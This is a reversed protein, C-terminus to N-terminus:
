VIKLVDVDADAMFIIKEYKCDKYPDFKRTYPKGLLIQIIAQVEANAMFEKYSKQFANPMKGRIPFVGQRMKDRGNKAQGGASDGEVILLELHEKGLPKAYKDPLGSLTNQKYKTVIKAKSAESKQRVEAIDKLYKALRSLDQPNSKSWDDLGKVLVEKCFPVM